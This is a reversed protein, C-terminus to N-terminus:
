YSLACEILENLAKENERFQKFKKETHEFEERAFKLKSSQVKEISPQDFLNNSQNIESEKGVTELSKIETHIRSGEFKRVFPISGEIRSHLYRKVSDSDALRSANSDVMETFKKLIENLGQQKANIAEGHIRDLLVKANPWVQSLDELRHYAKRHKFDSILKGEPLLKDMIHQMEQAPHLLEKKLEKVKKKLELHRGKEYKLHFQKTKRGEINKIQKELKLMYAVNKPVTYPVDRMSHVGIKKLHQYINNQSFIQKKLLGKPLERTLAYELNKLAMSHDAIKLGLNHTMGQIAQILNPNERMNAIYGDLENYIIYSSLLQNEEESFNTIGQDFLASQLNKVGDRTLVENWVRGTVRDYPIQLSELIKLGGQHVKSIDNPNELYDLYWKHMEPSIMGMEEAHQLHDQLESVKAVKEAQQGEIIQNEKLVEDHQKLLRTLELDVSKNDAITNRHKIIGRIGKFGIYGAVLPSAGLLFGYNDSAWDQIAHSADLSNNIADYHESFHEPIVMGKYAGYAETLSSTIAGISINPLYHSAAGSALTSLPVQTGLYGTLAGEGGLDLAIERAGFGIAASIGAGVAGGALALPLTPIIGGIINSVANTAQQKIGQRPDSLLENILSLRDNNELRTKETSQGPFIYDTLQNVQLFPKSFAAEATQGVTPKYSTNDVLGVQREGGLM